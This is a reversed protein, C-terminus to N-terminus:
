ADILFISATAASIWSLSNNIYHLTKFKQLGLDLPRHVNWISPQSKLPLELSLSLSCFMIFLFSHMTSEFCFPLLTQKTFGTCMQGFAQVSKSHLLNPHDKQALLTGNKFFQNLKPPQNHLM